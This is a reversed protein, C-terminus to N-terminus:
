TLDPDIDNKRWIGQEEGADTLLFFWEFRGNQGAAKIHKLSAAPTTTQHSPDSPPLQGWSLATCLGILILWLGRM